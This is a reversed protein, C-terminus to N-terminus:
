VDKLDEGQKAIQELAKINKKVTEKSVKKVGFGTRTYIIENTDPLEKTM